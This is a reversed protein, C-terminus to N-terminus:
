FGGCGCGLGGRGDPRPVAGDGHEGRRPVLTTRLGCARAALLDGNHAAAMCVDAPKMGPADFVLARLNEM